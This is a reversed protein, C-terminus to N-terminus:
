LYFSYTYEAPINPDQQLYSFINELVEGNKTGSYKDIFTDKIFDTIASFEDLHQSCYQGDKSQPNFTIEGLSCIASPAQTDTDTFFSITTYLLIDGVYLFSEAREDSIESKKIIFKILGNFPTGEEEKDKNTNNDNDHEAVIGQEILRNALETEINRIEGQYLSVYKDTYEQLAIIQKM